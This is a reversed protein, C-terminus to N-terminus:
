GYRELAEKMRGVVADRLEKPEVVRAAAGFGMVWAIVSESIPVTMTLRV